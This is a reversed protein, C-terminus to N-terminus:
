SWCDRFCPPLPVAPRRLGRRSCLSADIALKPGNSKMTRAPGSSPSSDSAPPTLPATVGLNVVSRETPTRQRLDISDPAASRRGDFGNIPSRRGAKSFSICPPSAWWLDARGPLDSARL